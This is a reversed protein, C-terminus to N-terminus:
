ELESEQMGEELGGTLTKVFEKAKRMKYGTDPAEDGSRPLDGHIELLREWIWQCVKRGVSMLGELGRVEMGKQIRKLAREFGPSAVFCQWAKKNKMLYNACVNASCDLMMTYYQIAWSVLDTISPLLNLERMEDPLIYPDQQALNGLPKLRITHSDQFSPTPSPLSLPSLPRQVPPPLSVPTKLLVTTAVTPTKPPEAVSRTNNRRRDGKKKAQAASQATENTADNITNYEASIKPITIDPTPPIKRRRGSQKNSELPPEAAGTKIIDTAETQPTEKTAPTALVRRPRGAKRRPPPIPTDIMMSDEDGADAGEDDTQMSGTVSKSETEPTNIAVWNNGKRKKYSNSTSTDARKIGRSKLTVIATPHHERAVEHGGTKDSAVDDGDDNGSAEWINSSESTPTISTNYLPKTTIRTSRRVPGTKEVIKDQADLNETQVAIIPKRLRAM